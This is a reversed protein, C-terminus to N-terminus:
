GTSASTTPQFIPRRAYHNWGFVQRIAMSFDFGGVRVDGVAKNFSAPFIAHGEYEENWSGVTYVPAPLAPTGVRQGWASKLYRDEHFRLTGKMFDAYDGKTALLDTFGNKAFGGALSPIVLIPNGTFRNLQFGFFDYNRQLLERNIETYGQRMLGNVAVVQQQSSAHHYNFVADFNAARRIRDISGPEQLNFLQEEGVLYPLQGFASRFLRRAEEIARDMADFEFGFGPGIGWSHSGYLFVVPRGDMRFLRVPTQDRIEKFFEGMRRFDAVLRSRTDVSAFSKRGTGGPLSIISEYLLAAHRTGADAAQLYGRRYNDDMHNNKVPTIWSLADVTIGFENKLRNFKGETEPDSSVYDGDLFQVTQRVGGRSPRNYWGYHWAVTIPRAEELPGGRPLPVNLEVARRDLHDVLGRGFIDARFDYGPLPDVAFGRRGGVARRVMQIDVPGLMGNGNVDVRYPAM